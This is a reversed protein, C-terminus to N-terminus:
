DITFVLASYDEFALHNILPMNSSSEVTKNTLVNNALNFQKIMHHLFLQMMHDTQWEPGLMALLGLESKLDHFSVVAELPDLQSWLQDSPIM